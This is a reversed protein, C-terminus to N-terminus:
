LQLHQAQVVILQKHIVAMKVQSSSKFQLKQTNLMVIQLVRVMQVHGIGHVAVM